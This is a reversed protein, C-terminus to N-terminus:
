AACRGISEAARTQFKRNALWEDVDSRLYLIKRPGVRCFPPGSGDLRRRQWTKESQGTLEELQRPTVFERM